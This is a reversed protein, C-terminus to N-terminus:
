ITTVMTKNVDILADIQSIFDAGILVPHQNETRDGISFLVSPYVKSGLEVTFEVVPREEDNGAGVHITINDVKDVTMRIDDVTTFSVQNGSDEIDVGHLVNHAGNGSDILAEIASDIGGIKITEVLGLEERELLAAITSINNFADNKSNFNERVNIDPQKTYHNPDNELRDMAMKQASMKNDTNKMEIQSGRRLQVMLSQFDTELSSNIDEFKQRLLKKIKFELIAKYNEVDGGPPNVPPNRFLDLLSDIDKDIESQM